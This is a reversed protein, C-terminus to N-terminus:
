DEDSTDDSSSSVSESPRSNKGDLFVNIEIHDGVRVNKSKTIQYQQPQNMLQSQQLSNTNATKMNLAMEQVQSVILPMQQTVVQCAIENNSKGNTENNPPSYTLSLASSSLNDITDKVKKDVLAKFCKENYRRQLIERQRIANRFANLLVPSPDM